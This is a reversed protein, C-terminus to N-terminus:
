GGNRERGKRRQSPLRSGGGGRILPCSNRSWGQTGRKKKKEGGEKAIGGGWGWGREKEGEGEGREWGRRPPPPAKKKGGGRPSAQIPLGEKTGGEGEERRNSHIIM